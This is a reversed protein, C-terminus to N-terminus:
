RLIAEIQDILVDRKMPYGAKSLEVSGDPKIIAYTPYGSGKIESMINDTLSQRALLHYGELKFFAILEKWKKENGIDGNAVYLYELGKNKFHAKIAEGHNKIEERCPGCWTGWMDLLVTKGKFIELVQKLSQITDGGAIFKMDPTVVNKLKAFLDKMSGGFLQQYKSNPYENAFKIYIDQINTPNATHLAEDFLVAYMYEKTAGSFYREIIKQKLANESDAKYNLVEKEYDDGYWDKIFKKLNSSGETWLREKTRLMFKRLFSYYNPIGKKIADDNSLQNQQFLVNKISDWSKINRYYADRIVFKRDESISFYHTLLSYQLNQKWVNIFADSPHNAQIYQQILLSDRTYIKKLGDFIKFPLSDKRQYLESLNAGREIMLRQNDKSGQGKTDILLENNQIRCELLLQYGKSLYLPQYFWSTDFEIYLYAIEPQDIDINFSFRNGKIEAERSGKNLYDYTFGKTTFSLTVSKPTENAIIGNISVKNQAFLSQICLCFSFQVLLLIGWAKIRM